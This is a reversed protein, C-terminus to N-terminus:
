APATAKLAEELCDLSSSWGQQHRDRLEQSEFREQTLRLETGGDRELFEITVVTEHGRVGDAEWGWTFVLRAPPTIERYVGSVIHDKGDPSRMTTRWAGGERVDMQWQPVTFGRPGWWRILRAPETWARFVQERPAAFHRTIRLVLSDDTATESSMTM